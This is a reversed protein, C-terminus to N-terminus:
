QSAAQSEVAPYMLAVKERILKIDAESIGPTRLWRALATDELPLFAVAYRAAIVRVAGMLVEVNAESLLEREMTWWKRAPRCSDAAMATAMIAKAHPVAYGMEKLREKVIQYISM